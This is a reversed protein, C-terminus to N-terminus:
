HDQVVNDQKIEHTSDSDNFLLLDPDYCVEEDGEDDYAFQNINDHMIGSDHSGNTVKIVMHVLFLIM